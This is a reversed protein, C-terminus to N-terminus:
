RPLPRTAAYPNTPVAASHELLDDADNDVEGYVEDTSTHFFRRVRAEKASELLM